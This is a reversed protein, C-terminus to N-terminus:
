YQLFRVQKRLTELNAPFFANLIAFYKIKFLIRYFLHKMILWHVFGGIVLANWIGHCPMSKIIQLNRCLFLFLEVRIMFILLVYQTSCPNRIGNEGIEHIANKQDFDQKQLFLHYALKLQIQRFIDWYKGERMKLM